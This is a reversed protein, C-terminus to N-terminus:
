LPKKVLLKEPVAIYRGDRKIYRLPVSEGVAPLEERRITMYMAEVTGEETSYKVVIRGGKSHALLLERLEEPLEPSPKYPETSTVTGTTQVGKKLLTKRLKEYKSNGFM